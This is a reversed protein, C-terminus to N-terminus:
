GSYRRSRRASTSAYRMARAASTPPPASGTPPRDASPNANPYVSPVVWPVTFTVSGLFHFGWAPTPSMQIVADSTRHPVPPTTYDRRLPTAGSRRMLQDQTQFEG